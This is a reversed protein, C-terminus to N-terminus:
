RMGAGLGGGVKVKCKQGGFERIFGGRGQRLGGKRIEVKDCNYNTTIASRATTVDEECFMNRGMIFHAMCLTRHSQRSCLPPPTMQLQIVLYHVILGVRVWVYQFM